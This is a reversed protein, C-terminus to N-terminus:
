TLRRVIILFLFKIPLGKELHWTFNFTLSATKTQDILRIVVFKVPHEAPNNYQIVIGKM